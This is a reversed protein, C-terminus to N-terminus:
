HISYLLAVGPFEILIALDGPQLIPDIPERIFTFVFKTVKSPDLNLIRDTHSPEWIYKNQNKLEELITQFAKFRQKCGALSDSHLIKYTGIIFDAYRCIMNTSSTTSPTVCITPLLHRAFSVIETSDQDSYIDRMFTFERTGTKNTLSKTAIAESAQSVLRMIAIQADSSIIIENKSTKERGRKMHSQLIVDNPPLMFSNIKLGADIPTAAIRSSSASRSIPSLPLAKPFSSSSASNKMGSGRQSSQGNGAYSLFINATIMLISVLLCLYKTTKKM